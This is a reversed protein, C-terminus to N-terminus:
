YNRDSLVGTSYACRHIHRQRVIGSLSRENRSQSGAFELMFTYEWKKDPIPIPTILLLNIKRSSFPALTKCLGGPVPQDLNVLLCTKCLRDTLKAKHIGVIWFRTFNNPNNTISDRELRVLGFEKEAKATSIAVCFPDQSALEAAKGTSDM